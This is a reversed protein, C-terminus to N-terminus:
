KIKAYKTKNFAPQLYVVLRNPSFLKDM